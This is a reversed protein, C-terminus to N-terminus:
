WHTTHVSTDSRISCGPSQVDVAGYILKIESELIEPSASGPPYTEIRTNITERAQDLWNDEVAAHM